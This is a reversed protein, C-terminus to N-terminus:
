GLIFVMVCLIFLFLGLLAMQEHDTIYGMYIDMFINEVYDVIKKIM